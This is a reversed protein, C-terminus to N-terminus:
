QEENPTIKIFVLGDALRAQVSGTCNHRKCYMSVSTRLSRVGNPTLDVSDGDLAWWEGDALDGFHRQRRERTQQRADLQGAEAETAHRM